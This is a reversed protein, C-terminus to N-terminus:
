GPFLESISGNPVAPVNEVNELLYAFIRSQLSTKKSPNLRNTPAENQRRNRVSSKMDIVETYITNVLQMLRM